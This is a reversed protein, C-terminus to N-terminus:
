RPLASCEALPVRYRALIDALVHFRGARNRLRHELNQLFAAYYATPRHPTHIAWVTDLVTFAYGAAFLESIHMVKNMGYNTLAESYPPPESATKRHSFFFFFFFNLSKTLTCFKM